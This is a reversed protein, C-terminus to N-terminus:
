LDGISKRYETPSFGVYRKFARSFTHISLYGLMDAIRSVSLEERRLLKKAEAIKLSNFYEIPSM